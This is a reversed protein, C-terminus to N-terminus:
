VLRQQRARGGADPARGLRWLLDVALQHQGGSAARKRLIQRQRRCRRHLAELSSHKGYQEQLIRRAEAQSKARIYATACLKIDATYVNLKESM